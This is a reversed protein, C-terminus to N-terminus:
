ARYRRGETQGYRLYHQVPDMGTRAVDANLALYHDPDFDPPLSADPRRRTTGPSRCQWWRWLRQPWPVAAASAGRAEGDTPRRQQRQQQQRLRALDSLQHEIRQRLERVPLQALPSDAVTDDDVVPVAAGSALGPAGVWPGTQQLLCRVERDVMQRVGLWFGPEGSRRLREAWFSRLGDHSRVLAELRELAQRHLDLVQVWDTAPLERFSGQSANHLLTTGGESPRGHLGPYLFPLIRMGRVQAARRLGDQESVPVVSFGPAQLQPLLARYHEAFDPTLM